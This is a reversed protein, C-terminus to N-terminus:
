ARAAPNRGSRSRTRRMTLPHIRLRGCAISTSRRIPSPPLGGLASVFTRHHRHSEGPRRLALPAPSLPRGCSAPRDVHSGSLAIRADARVALGTVPPRRSVHGPPHAAGIPRDGQQGLEREANGRLCALLHRRPACRVCLRRRVRGPQRGVPVRRGVYLRHEHEPAGPRTRAPQLAVENGSKARNAPVLPGRGNGGTNIVFHVGGLAKAIRQGYYLETTTWDFHTANLSFGARVASRRDAAHRGHDALRNRRRCRRRPLARRAPRARAPPHGVEARGRAPRPPWPPYVAKTILADIEFFMVVRFNGIGEALHNIWNRYSKVFAPSDSWSGTCHGHVLSYTTLMATSDPQSLQTYELYNAVLNEPNPENWYWFRREGPADAIVSLAKAWAPNSQSYQAEAIGANSKAGAIYWNVNQLVNASSPAPSSKLPNADDRQELPDDRLITITAERPDGITQPGAGFLYATAHVTSGPTNMGRDYIHVSVSYNAQGPLFHAQSNPVVDFDVKNTANAQRVGYGIWAEASADSRHITITAYGQNEHVTYDAQSFAITGPASAAATATARHALAGMAGAAM